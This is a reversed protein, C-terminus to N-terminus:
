SVLDMAERVSTGRRMFCRRKGNVKLWIELEVIVVDEYEQRGGPLGPFGSLFGVVLTSVVDGIIAACNPPKFEM